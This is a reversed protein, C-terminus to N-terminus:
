LRRRWIWRCGPRRLLKRRGREPMREQIPVTRWTCAIDPCCSPKKTKEDATQCATEVVAAREEETTEAAIAEVAAAREAAATLAAEVAAEKVEAAAAM